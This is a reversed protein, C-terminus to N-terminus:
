EAKIEYREGIFQRAQEDDFGSKLLFEYIQSESNLGEPVEINYMSKVPATLEAKGVVEQVEKEDMGQFAFGMANGRQAEREETTPKYTSYGKRISLLEDEGAGGKRAESVAMDMAARQAFEGMWKDLTEKDKLKNPDYKGESIGLVRMAFKDSKSTVPEGSAYQDYIKWFIQEKLSGSKIPEVGKRGLQVTPNSSSKQSEEYKKDDKKTLPGFPFRSRQKEDYAKDMGEFMSGQFDEGQYQEVYKQNLMNQYDTVANAKERRLSERKYSPSLWDRWKSREETM